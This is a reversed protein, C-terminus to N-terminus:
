ACKVLVSFVDKQYTKRGNDCEGCASEVECATACRFLLVFGDFRDLATKCNGSTKNRCPNAQVSAVIGAGNWGCESALARSAKEQEFAYVIPSRRRITAGDQSAGEAVGETAEWPAKM